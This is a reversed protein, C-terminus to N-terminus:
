KSSALSGAKKAADIQNNMLRKVNGSATLVFAGPVPVDANEYALIAETRSPLQDLKANWYVVIYGEKIWDYTEKDISHDAWLDDESKPSTGVGDAYGLYAVGLNYMKGQVKERDKVAFVGVGHKPKQREPVSDSSQSTSSGSGSPSASSSSENSAVRSQRKSRTCGCAAVLVISGVIVSTTFWTHRKM